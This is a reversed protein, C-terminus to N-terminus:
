PLVTLVVEDVKILVANEESSAEVEAEEDVVNVGEDVEDVVAETVETEETEEVDLHSRLDHTLKSSPRKKENSLQSARPSTLPSTSMTTRRRSSRLLLGNRTREQVRM